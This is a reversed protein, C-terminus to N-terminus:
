FVFWVLCHSMDLATSAGNALSAARVAWWDDDDRDVLRESAVVDSLKTVALELDSGAMDVVTLRVTVM